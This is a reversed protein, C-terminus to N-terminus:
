LFWGITEVIGDGREKDGKEVAKAYYKRLYATFVRDTTDKFVHYRDIM